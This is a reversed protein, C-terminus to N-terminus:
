IAYPPEITRSNPGLVTRGLRGEGIIMIPMTRRVTITNRYKAGNGSHEITQVRWLSDNIGSEVDTIAVLDGPQRAPNGAVEIGSSSNGITIVPRMLTARLNRALRRADYERQVADSSATLSREGREAISSADSNEAFTSVGEHPKGALALGSWGNINAAYLNAATTNEILITAAGPHWSVISARAQSSSPSSGTGDAQTNLTIYHTDTPQTGTGPNLPITLGRLEVATTTLPLVFTTKGPPFAVETSLGVVIIYRTSSQARDYTVRVSNRIKTPDQAVPVRAANSGTDFSDVVVQQADKVWHGQGLYNVIDLEDTRLMALEARAFSGILEWAERPEPEAVNILNLKSANVRAGPTFPIDRLWPHNDANAYPGATIQLEAIPLLSKIRPNNSAYTPIGAFASVQFATNDTEVVGDVNIWRRHPSGTFDYAMGVFHWQEDRPIATSHRFTSVVHNDSVTIIPRRDLSPTTSAPVRMDVGTGGLESQFFGMWASSGATSSAAPADNLAYDSGFIWFEIKGRASTKSIMADGDALPTSKGNVIDYLNNGSLGTRDWFLDPALHYPGGIWTQNDLGATSGGSGNGTFFLQRVSDGNASPIFPHVSGHMPAWFRCGPQPPPSLYVGSAALAYSIVWDARAGEYRGAVAPPQVLASLKLRSASIANINADTGQVPTDVMQGTFVRIYERGNATILGVDLTVPAIDRDHAAIPSDTRLPSFFARASMEPWTRVSFSAIGMTANSAATTTASRVYTSGATGLIPATSAGVALNLNDASGSAGVAQVVLNETAPMTWTSANTTGRNWFTVVVNWFGLTAPAIIPSQHSTLSTGPENTQNAATLDMRMIRGVGDVASLSAAVLTYQSTAGWTFTYTAGNARLDADVYRYYPVTQIINGDITAQTLQTLDTANDGTPTITTTSNTGVLIILFYGVTLGAPITVSVTAAATVGNAVSTSWESAVTVPTPSAHRGGVDASMEATALGSIYSVEDPLGDDLHHNVTWAGAQQTLDDLTGDGDYGDGDWDATIWTPAWNRVSNVADDFADSTNQM